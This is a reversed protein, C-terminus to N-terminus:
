LNEVPPKELGKELKNLIEKGDYLSNKFTLHTRDRTEKQRPNL